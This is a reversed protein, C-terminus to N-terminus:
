LSPQVGLERCVEVTALGARDGGQLDDAQPHVHYVLVERLGDQEHLGHGGQQGLAVEIRGQRQAHHLRAETVARVWLVVHGNGKDLYALPQRASPFLMSMCQPLLLLCGCLTRAKMTCPTLHPPALLESHFSLTNMWSPSVSAIGKAHLHLPVPMELLKVLQVSRHLAAALLCASRSQFTCCTRLPM